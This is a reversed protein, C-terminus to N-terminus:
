EPQILINQRATENAIINVAGAYQTYLDPKLNSNTVIDPYKEEVAQKFENAANYLAQFNSQLAELKVGEEAKAKAQLDALLQMQQEQSLANIDIPM